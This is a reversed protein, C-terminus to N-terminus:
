GLWLGAQVWSQMNVSAAPLDNLILSEGENYPIALGPGMFMEKSFEGTLLVQGTADFLGSAIQGIVKNEYSVTPGGTIAGAARLSVVLVSSRTANLGSNSAQVYFGFLIWDILGFGPLVWSTAQTTATAVPMRSIFHRVRM